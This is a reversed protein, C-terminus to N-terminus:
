LAQMAHLLDATRTRKAGGNSQGVLWNEASIQTPLSTTLRLLSYIQRSIGEPTRIGGQGGRKKRLPIVGSHCRPDSFFAVM